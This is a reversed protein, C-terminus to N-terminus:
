WRFTAHTKQGYPISKGVIPDFRRMLWGALPFPLHPSEFRRPVRLSKEEEMIRDPNQESHAPVQQCRAIVPEPARSRKRDPSTFAAQAVGGVAANWTVVRSRDSLNVIGTTAARKRWAGSLMPM